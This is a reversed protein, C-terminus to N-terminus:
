KQVFTQLRQLDHSREPAINVQRDSDIGCDSVRFRVPRCYFCIIVDPQKRDMFRVGIDGERVSPATGTTVADRILAQLREGVEADRLVARRLIASGHFFKANTLGADHASTESKPDLWYIALREARRAASFSQPFTAAAVALAAATIILPRAPYERLSRMADLPWPCGSSNLWCPSSAKARPGAYCQFRQVRARPNVSKGRPGITLAHQREVRWGIERETVRLKPLSLNEESVHGDPLEVGKRPVALAPALDSVVAFSM